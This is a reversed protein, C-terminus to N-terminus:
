GDELGTFWGSGRLPTHRAADTSECVHMPCEIMSVGHHPLGHMADILLKAATSGLLSINNDFTTLTPHASM